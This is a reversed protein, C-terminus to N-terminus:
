FAKSSIYKFPINIKSGKSFPSAALRPAVNLETKTRWSLQLPFQRQKKGTFLNLTV